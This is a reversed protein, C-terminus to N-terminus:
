SPRSSCARHQRSRARPRAEVHGHQAPLEVSRHLRRRRAPRPPGDVHLGRHYEGAPKGELFRRRPQSSAGTTSRSLGDRVRRNGDPKGVNESEISSLEDINEEIAHAVKHLTESRARPTLAAWEPFAARAADVARAVDAAGSSAVEAIVERTAPNIVADRRGDQAEVWKGGIHNETLM